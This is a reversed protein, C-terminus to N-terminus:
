SFGRDDLKKNSNVESTPGLNLMRTENLASEYQMLFNQGKAQNADDNFNLVMKGAVYLILAEELYPPIHIQDCPDTGIIVDHKAQYVVSFTTNKHVATIQLCDFEPTFVSLSQTEDNLPVEKGEDDYVSLIKILDEEYDGTASDDIYKLPATSDDNSLAFEKRLYYYTVPDVRQILLEKERLVLRSFLNTLGQNLNFVVANRHEPKILSKDSDDVYSTNRLPGYALRNTFEKLEM